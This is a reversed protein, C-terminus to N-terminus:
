VGSSLRQRYLFNRRFNVEREPEDLQLLGLQSSDIM